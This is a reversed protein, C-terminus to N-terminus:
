GGGWVGGLGNLRRGPGHGRRAGGAQGETLGAKMGLATHAALCYACGNLQATTLAIAEREAATLVGRNLAGAFAVYGNLAAPSNALAKFLNIRLSKLPSDFLEKVKGDAKAPDVNTLRPM